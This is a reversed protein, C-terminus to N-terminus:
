ILKKITEILLAPSDGKICYEDAGAERAKVADIADIKGTYIIVKCPLHEVQKIQHCVEVGGMGSMITDLLVLDPKERRAKEIAERGNAAQIVKYGYEELIDALSTRTNIDDDVVLLIKNHM